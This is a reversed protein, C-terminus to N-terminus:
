SSGDNETAEWYRRYVDTRTQGLSPLSRRVRAMRELDIDVNVMGEEEGADCILVGFPDVVVSRGTFMRGKQSAVAVYVTNEIARAKALIHLHEEKMSGSVWATPVIVLDAGQLALIRAMEPFRLEYCTMLGMRGLKTDFAGEFDDAPEFAASEKYGFSDFLQLKRHTAVVEGDPGIMVITNHVRDKRKSKELIGVAVHMHRSRAEASLAGIFEGDVEEAISALKSPSTTLPAYAMFLEPLVLLDAGAENASRILELGRELNVKKKEDASVQALAIRYVL